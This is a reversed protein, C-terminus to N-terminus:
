GNLVAKTETIFSELTLLHPRIEKPFNEINDEPIVLRVGHDHMEQWQNPSVGQQLTLLHKVPIRDAENIVQRWRDKCTTKAALMRLRASPYTTSRYADASPFLFDPRKKGESTKGRDYPLSEEAFICEAQLELSGGARAKRRNTVANAFNVFIDVTAFGEQLRPLVHHQEVSRFIDYECALRRLLRKDASTQKKKVSRINAVAMEVIETGTPFTTRWAAPLEAETLKCPSDREVAAEPLLGGPSYLVGAGPAVPGVVEQVAQTEELGDCLWARCEQCDPRQSLDFAFVCLSGTSEPDLLPSEKGGFGTVRAENRTKNNYWILKVDRALDHSDLRFHMMAFPNAETETRKALSPFALTVMRKPVYFGAQHSENLLTDNASLYKVYWLWDEGSVEEMWSAIRQPDAPTMKSVDSLGSSDNNM